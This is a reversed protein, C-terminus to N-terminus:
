FLYKNIVIATSSEVVAIPIQLMVISMTCSFILDSKLYVTMPPKNIKSDNPSNM